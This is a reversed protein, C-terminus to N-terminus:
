SKRGRRTLILLITCIFYFDAMSILIISLFLKITLYLPTGEWVDQGFYFLALFFLVIFKIGYAFVEKWNKM